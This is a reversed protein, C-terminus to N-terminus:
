NCVVVAEPGEAGKFNTIRTLQQTEDDDADGDDDDDNNNDDDDDDRSYCECLRGVEAKLPERPYDKFSVGEFSNM